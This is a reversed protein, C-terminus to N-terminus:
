RHERRHDHVDRDRGPRDDALRADQHRHRCSHARRRRCQRDGDRGVRGAADGHGVGHQHLRGHCRRDVHLHDAHCENGGPDAPIVTDCEPTLADVVRVDALDTDGDNTVTITFTVPSGLPVSQTDPTKSVSVSPVVVDVVATDTAEPVANGIPDLANAFATNTFDASVGALTCDYTQSAGLALTAFTRDCGPALPDTVVVDTLATEGANAVTITFTVTDGVRALALDPTKSITIAPTLVTVDATDTVAAVPDGNPDVGTAEVTNTFDAAVGTLTCSWSSTAGAVLTLGLRDCGPVLADTVDVGTLTVDGPNSVTITFTADGNVVVAQTDPTKSM